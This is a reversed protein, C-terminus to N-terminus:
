SVVSVMLTDEGVGKFGMQSQLDIGAPEEGWRWGWVRPTKVVKM